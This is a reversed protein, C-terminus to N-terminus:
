SERRTRDHESASRALFNRPHRGDVHGIVTGYMSYGLFEQLRPPLTVAVGRPVALLHNEQPRLWSAVYELITGLRPRDTTNAGGGHLVNGLYFLVSGAAMVAPITGPERLPSHHGWRHSGPVLRTAGNADTFDDFAWMTNVIVNRFDPGLPYIDADRHLPQAQEGPGICIGAPACLQYDALLRDLVGLLIPHIALEDFARTKAFLGYIRQTKYGEFDNRGTPTAELIGLLARRIGSLADPALFREVICCGDRELASVVGGITALEARFRPLEPETM